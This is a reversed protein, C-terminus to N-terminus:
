LFHRCEKSRLEGCVLVKFALCRVQVHLPIKLKIQIQVRASIEVRTKKDKEVLKKSWQVCVLEQLISFRLNWVLLWILAYTIITLFTKVHRIKPPFNHILWQHNTAFDNNEPIWLKM